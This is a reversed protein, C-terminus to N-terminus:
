DAEHFTVVVVLDQMDFYSSGPNTSYLEFLYILDRPGLVVTNRASVFSSLYGEITGRSYAPAYDPLSDGNQLATVTPNSDLTWRVSYWSGSGTRARGAFDIETGAEVVQDFVPTDPNVDSSKGYFLSQWGNGSGGVRAWFAVPLQTPGSQFTDGIVRVEVRTRKRTTVTKTSDLDVIDTVRDPFDINWNLQPKVGTRVLQRSVDLTGVPLYPDGHSGQGFAVGVGLAFAVTMSRILATMMGFAPHHRRLDRLINRIEM